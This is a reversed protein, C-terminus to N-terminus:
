QYKALLATMQPDNPIAALGQKLLAVISSTPQPYQNTYLDYLDIYIYEDTPDNALQAKFAAVAKPYDPIFNTYLDGLNANSVQNTPYLASMYSWDAAAGTYDGAEKRIVGLQIWTNFDQPNKDLASQTAAFESQLDARQDAPVSSAFVLPTRYSPAQAASSSAIPIQTITYGAPASVIKGNSSIVVSTSSSAASATSLSTSSAPSEPSPIGAVSGAREQWALFGLILVVIVITGVIVVNRNHTSM